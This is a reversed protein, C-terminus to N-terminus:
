RLLLMKKINTYVAGSSNGKAELKYFYVGSGVSVGASNRGDWRVEFTGPGQQGAALAAVEQGLVSYIKLTVDSQVPVAYKITTTPNFPNPYNQVLGYAEPIERSPPEVSTAPVVVVGFNIM